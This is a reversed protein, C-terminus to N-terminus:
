RDASDAPGPKGSARSHGDIGAKSRHLKDLKEHEACYMKGGTDKQCSHWHCFRFRETEDTV